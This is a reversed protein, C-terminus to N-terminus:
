TARRLGHVVTSHDRNLLRGIRPTSKGAARLERMVAWRAECVHRVRSPGTIDEVDVDHLAAIRAIIQAGTYRRLSPPKYWAPFM